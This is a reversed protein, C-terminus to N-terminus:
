PRITAAPRRAKSRRGVHRPSPATLRLTWTESAKHHGPLREILVIQKTAAEYAMSPAAEPRPSVSPSLKIWTSGNWAWTHAPPVTIGNSGGFGGFLVLEKAAADYAMSAYWRASPSRSPHQKVWTGGNWAWTDALLRGRGARSVRGAGGFLVIQKTAADYAMTAYSRGPPNVSPHERTWDHGDWVWTAHSGSQNAGRSLTQDNGGFLVVQKTAADYAMSPGTRATPNTTPHLRTWTSGNWTWTESTKLMAFYAPTLKHTLPDRYAPPPFSSMARTISLLVVNRTAADYAMAGGWRVWATTRPTLKRWVSGNWEWTGNYNHGDGDFWNGDGFCLVKHNAADYTMLPAMPAPPAIGHTEM